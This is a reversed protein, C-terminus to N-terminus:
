LTNDNNNNTNENNVNSMETLENLAKDTQIMGKSMTAHETTTTAIFGNDKITDLAWPEDHIICQQGALHPLYIFSLIQIRRSCKLPTQRHGLRRASGQIYTSNETTRITNGLFITALVTRDDSLIEPGDRGNLGTNRDVFAQYNRECYHAQHIVTM